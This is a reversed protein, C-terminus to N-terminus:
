RGGRTDLPALERAAAAVLKELFRDAHPLEGDVIKALITGDPSVIRIAPLTEADYKQKIAGLAPDDNEQSLDVRLLTFRSCRRPSRAARSCRARRVGQLAPM